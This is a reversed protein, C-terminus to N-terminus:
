STLSGYVRGQEASCAQKPEIFSPHRGEGRPFTCRLIRWVTSDLVGRRRDALMGM